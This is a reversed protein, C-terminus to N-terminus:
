GASRREVLRAGLWGMPAALLAPAWMWAPHPPLDPSVLNMISAGVFIVGVVLGVVGRRRVAIPAAVVGGALAGLMWGLGVIAYAATPLSAAYRGLAEPNTFDMGPPPPFLLVNAGEVLGVVFGGVVVGAIVGLVNRVLPPLRNM